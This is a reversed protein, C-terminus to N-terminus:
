HQRPRRTVLGVLILAALFPELWRRYITPACHEASGETMRMYAAAKLEDRVNWRQLFARRARM